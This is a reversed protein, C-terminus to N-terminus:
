TSVPGFDPVRFNIKEQDASSYRTLKPFIAKDIANDLEPKMEQVTGKRVWGRLDAGPVDIELVGIGHIGRSAVRCYEATV